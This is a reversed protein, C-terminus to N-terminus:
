RELRFCLKRLRIKINRKLKKMFNTFEIWSVLWWLGKKKIFFYDFLVEKKKCKEMPKTLLFGGLMEKAELIEVFGGLISLVGSVVAENEIPNM